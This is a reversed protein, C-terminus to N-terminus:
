GSQSGQDYLGPLQSHRAAAAEAAAREVDPHVPPPPVPFRRDLTLHRTRSGGGSPSSGGAAALVIILIFVPFLVMRTFMVWGARLWGLRGGTNFRVVVTDSALSGLSVGNPCCFGYLWPAAMWVTIAAAVVQGATGMASSAVAGSAVAAFVAVLSFDVAWAGLSQWGSSEVVRQGNGLKKTRKRASKILM